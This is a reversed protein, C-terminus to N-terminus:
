FFEGVLIRGAEAGAIISGPYTNEARGMPRLSMLRYRVVM